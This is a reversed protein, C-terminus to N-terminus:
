KHVENKRKSNHLEKLSICIDNIEEETLYELMAGAGYEKKPIYYLGKLNQSFMLQYKIFGDPIYISDSKDYRSIFTGHPGGRHSMYWYLTWPILDLLLTDGVRIKTASYIPESKFSLLSPRIDTIAVAESDGLYLTDIVLKVDILYATELDRIKTIEFHKEVEYYESYTRLVDEDITTDASNQALCHGYVSIFITLSKLFFSKVIKPKM